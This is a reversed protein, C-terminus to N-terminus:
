RARWRGNGLEAVDPKDPDAAQATQTDHAGVRTEFSQARVFDDTIARNQSARRKMEWTAMLM